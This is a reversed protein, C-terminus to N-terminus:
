NEEKNLKRFIKFLLNTTYSFIWCSLIMWWMVCDFFIDIKDKEYLKRQKRSYKYLDIIWVLLMGLIYVLIICFALEKGTM